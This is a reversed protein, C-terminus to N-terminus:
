PAALIGNDRFAAPQEPAYANRTPLYSTMTPARTEQDMILFISSYPIEHPQIVFVYEM